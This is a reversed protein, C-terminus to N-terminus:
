GKEFFRVTFLGAVMAAVFSLVPASVTALNAIAPGPCIGALAWGTGFLFAGFVLKWDFRRKKPLAYEDACLPRQLYKKSILFTLLFVLFGGAMVFILSPDWNGFVDLFNMVKYPNLMGSIGLGIAFLTGSFFSWFYRM